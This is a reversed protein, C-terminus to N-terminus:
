RILHITGTFQYPKNQFDTMHIVYMYVDMQCGEGTWPDSVPDGSYVIEGWRNLIQMKATMFGTQSIKYFDNLGDNNPSFANPFLTRKSQPVCQLNSKSAIGETNYAYVQYCKQWSFERFFDNETYVTDNLTSYLISREEQDYFSLLDYREVGNTWYLYSSWFIEGLDNELVPNLYILTGVNSAGSENACVDVAKAQYYQTQTPTQQQTLDIDIFTDSVSEFLGSQLNYLRYVQAQPLSSWHAHILTNTNYTVLHLYPTDSKEFGQFVTINQTDSTVCGTNGYLIHIISYEGAEEFLHSTQTTNNTTKEFRPPTVVWKVSDTPDNYKNKIQVEIPACLKDPSIELGPQPAALIEVKQLRSFTDKCFGDDVILTIIFKGNQTYTHYVPQETVGQEMTNGDGFDWILKPFGSPSGGRGHISKDELRFAIWQCGVSDETIFFAKPVPLVTVEEFWWQWGSYPSLGKVKVTFVGTTDFTYEPYPESSSYDLSDGNPFMFKIKEFGQTDGFPVFRLTHKQCTQEYRYKLTKIPIGSRSFLRRSNKSVFNFNIKPLTNAQNYVLPQDSVKKHIFSYRESTDNQISSHRFGNSSFFLNDNALQAFDFFPGVGYWNKSIIKRSKINFEYIFMNTAPGGDSGGFTLSAHIRNYYLYKEDLSFGFTSNLYELGHYSGGYARFTDVVTFSNAKGNEKNFDCLVIRGITENHLDIPNDCNTKYSMVFYLALKNHKPSFKCSNVTEDSYLPFSFAYNDFYRYIMPVDYKFEYKFGQPLKSEVLELVDLLSNVLRSQITDKHVTVIWWKDGDPHPAIELYGSHDGIESPIIEVDKRTIKGTAFDIVSAKLIKNHPYAPVCQYDKLTSTTWYFWAYQNNGILCSASQLLGTKPIETLGPLIQTTEGVSDLKNGEADFLYHELTFGILNGYYDTFHNFNSTNKIGYIRAIQSADISDGFNIRTIEVANTDSLVGSKLNATLVFNNSQASPYLYSCLLAM